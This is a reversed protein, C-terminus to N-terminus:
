SRPEASAIALGTFTQNVHVSGFQEGYTHFGVVGHEAMTRGTEEQIGREFVELRRLICEFGVILAPDPLVQEVEALSQELQQALDAGQAVTLVLGEDIACFFTLSGDANAQQISRVYFEGGIRLMLPHKSFTQSHLESLEHGLLRAYEAAAPRGNIAHVIRRDVDARTVVLKHETAEFHQAKFLHFPRETIGLCLLAGGSHFAGGHLLGTERFELGDGASGGVLPLGQLAIALQGVVQEEAMSLGDILVLGFARAGPQQEQAAELRAHVERAVQSVGDELGRKVDPLEHVSLQALEHGISFGSLGGETYGNPGIEGATTCGVLQEGFEAQLATALEVRDYSPAAFVFHWADPRRIQSALERAAVSADKAVIAGRPCELGRALSM